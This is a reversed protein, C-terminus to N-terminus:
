NEESPLSEIIKIAKTYNISSLNDFIFGRQKEICHKNIRKDELFSLVEDKVEKDIRPRSDNDNLLKCVLEAEELSCFTCMYRNIRSNNYLCYPNFKNGSEQEITYKQKESM